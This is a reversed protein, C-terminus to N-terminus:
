GNEDLWKTKDYSMNEPDVLSFVFRYGFYNDFVPGVKQWNVKNLDFNKLLRNQIPNVRADRRMRKIIELGIRECDDLYEHEQTFNDTEVKKLIMFAGIRDALINDSKNDTLSGEFSELILAPSNIDSRLGTLVEEVNMRYFHKETKKHAIEKHNTAIGEFYSIYQSVNLM